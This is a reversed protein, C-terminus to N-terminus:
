IAPISAASSAASSSGSSAKATPRLSCLDPRARQIFDLLHDSVTRACVVYGDARLGEVRADRTPGEDEILLVHRACVPPPPLSEVREEPTGRVGSKPPVSSASSLLNSPFPLLAHPPNLNM